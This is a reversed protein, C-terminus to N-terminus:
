FGAMIGNEVVNVYCSITNFRCVAENQLKHRPELSKRTKEM